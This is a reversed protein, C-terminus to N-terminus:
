KSVWQNERYFVEIKRSVLTDKLPRGILLEFTVVNSEWNALRPMRVLKTNSEHKIDTVTGEVNFAAPAVKAIASIIM